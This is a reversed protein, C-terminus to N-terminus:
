RREAIECRDKHASHVLLFQLHLLRTDVAVFPEDFRRMTKGYVESVDWGAELM